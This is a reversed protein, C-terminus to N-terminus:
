NDECRPRGNCSSSSDRTGLVRAEAGASWGAAFGDDLVVFLVAAEFLEPVEPDGKLDEPNEVIIEEITATYTLSFTDPDFVPGVLVMNITMGEIVLSAQGELGEPALFWEESFALTQLRGAFLSPASMMWATEEATGELVFTYTGDGNDAFSGAEANQVLTGVLTSTSEATDDQAFVVGLSLAALLILVLTTRALYKM